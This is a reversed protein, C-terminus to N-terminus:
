REEVISLRDLLHEGTARATTGRPVRGGDGGFDVVAVGRFLANM